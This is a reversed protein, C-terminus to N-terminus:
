RRCPWHDARDAGASVRIGPAARLNSAAGARVARDIDADTAALEDGAFLHEIRELGIIGPPPWISTRVAVPPVGSVSVPPEIWPVMSARSPASASRCVLRLM